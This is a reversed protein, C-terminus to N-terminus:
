PAPLLDSPAPLLEWFVNSEESCKKEGVPDFESPGIWCIRLELTFSVSGCLLRRRKPRRRGRSEKAIGRRFRQGLFAACTCLWHFRM